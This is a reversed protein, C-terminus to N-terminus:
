TCLLFLYFNFMIYFSRTWMDTHTVYTSYLKYYLFCCPLFAVFFTKLSYNFHDSCLFSVYNVLCKYVACSTSNRSCQPLLIENQGVPLRIRIQLVQNPHTAQSFNMWVNFCNGWAVRILSHYLCLQFHPWWWLSLGKQMCHIYVHLIMQCNWYANWRFCTKYDKFYIKCWILM